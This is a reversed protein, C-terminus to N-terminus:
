DALRIRQLLDRFSSDARLGDLRPDLKLWCLRFPGFESLDKLRKEM